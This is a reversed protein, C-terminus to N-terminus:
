EVAERQGTATGPARDLAPYVGMLLEFRRGGAAGEDHYKAVLAGVASTLEEAFANREAASRFRVQTGLTLTAVRKGAGGARDLVAGLQGILRAAAALLYAASFRDAVRAPDAAVEGLAEPAILYSRARARLIRENRSGQSREEMLEVLGAAELQRLHYNVLQRPMGLRRAVGAASDPRVLAEVMRLRTPQLLAAAQETAHVLALPQPTRM